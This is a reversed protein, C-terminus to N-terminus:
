AVLQQISVKSGAPDPSRDCGSIANRLPVTLEDSEGSSRFPNSGETGPHRPCGNSVAMNSRKIGKQAKAFRNSVRIQLVTRPGKM